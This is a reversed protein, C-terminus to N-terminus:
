DGFNGGLPIPAMRILRSDEVAAQRHPMAKRYEPDGLMDVFAQPNPYEAIFCLDWTEESPGIVVLEQAGRWVIKGGLRQFVPASEKGYAAYAEKGSMERGDDYEAKARLKVLNLMHIPGERDMAKFAEFTERDFAKHGM